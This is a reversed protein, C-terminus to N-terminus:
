GLSVAIPLQFRNWLLYKGQPHQPRHQLKAGLVASNTTTQQRLAPVQRSNKTADMRNEDVVTKLRHTDIRKM